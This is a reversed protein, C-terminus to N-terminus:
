PARGTMMEFKALGRNNYADAFDPKKDLAESYYRIAERYERKQLQVNGRLFFQAAEDTRDNSCSVTLSLCGVVMALRIGSWGKRLLYM